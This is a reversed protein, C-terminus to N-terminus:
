HILQLLQAAVGLKAITGAALMAVVTVVASLESRIPFRKM